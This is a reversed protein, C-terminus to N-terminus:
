RPDEADALKSDDMRDDGPGLETHYRIQAVDSADSGADFRRHAGDAAWGASALLSRVAEDGVVLWAQARRFGDSRLQDAAAALLRSGHGRRVDDPDVLLTLLEGDLDDSDRDAAPATAAFGVVGDAVDDALVAVLVRHRPSPPADTASRWQDAVETPAAPDRLAALTTAPLLGGCNALWSRVQIRGIAEADSSRAARVYGAM